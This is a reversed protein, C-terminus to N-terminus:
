VWSIGLGNAACPSLGSGAPRKWRAKGAKAVAVRRVVFDTGADFLGTALRDLPFNLALEEEDRGLVCARAAAPPGATTEPYPRAAVFLFAPLRARRFHRCSAASDNWPSHWHSRGELLIVQSSCGAQDAVRELMGIGAPPGPSRRASFDDRSAAAKAIQQHSTPTRRQNLLDDSRLFAGTYGTDAPAAAPM